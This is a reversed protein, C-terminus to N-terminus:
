GTELCQMQKVEEFILPPKHEVVPLGLENIPQTLKRRTFRDRWDSSIMTIVKGILAGFTHTSDLMM